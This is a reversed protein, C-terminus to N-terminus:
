SAATWTTGSFGFVAELPPLPINVAGPTHATEYEASPRVDLLRIPEDTEQWQRREPATVTQRRAATDMASM